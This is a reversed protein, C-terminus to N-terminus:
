FAAREVTLGFVIRYSELYSHSFNISEEKLNLKKQLYCICTGLLLLLWKQTMCIHAHKCLALSVAASHALSLYLSFLASPLQCLIQPVTPWLFFKLKQRLHSLATEPLRAHKQRNVSRVETMLFTPRLCSSSMKGPEWFHGVLQQFQKNYAMPIKLNTQQQLMFQIFCNDLSNSCCTCM